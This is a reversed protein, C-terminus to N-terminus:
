LKGKNKELMWCPSDVEKRFTQELIEWPNWVLSSPRGQCHTVIAKPLEGSIKTSVGAQKGTMNSAGDYTQNRGDDSSLSYILLIYKIAKFTTGSKINDIDYFGLFDKNVNLDAGVNRVCFPLQEKNSIDAREDAMISFFRRDRMVAVRERLVQAGIINLLENQVDHNNFKHELKGDFPNMIDNDKTGFSIFYNGLITKEIMDKCHSEKDPLTNWVNLLQLYKREAQRGQELQNDM